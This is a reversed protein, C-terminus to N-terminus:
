ASSPAARVRRAPRLSRVREGVVVRFSADVPERTFPHVFPALEDRVRNAALALQYEGGEPTFRLLRAIRGGPLEGLDKHRFVLEM